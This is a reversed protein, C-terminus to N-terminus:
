FCAVFNAQFGQSGYTNRMESSRHLDVIDNVIWSNHRHMLSKNGIFFQHRPNGCNM